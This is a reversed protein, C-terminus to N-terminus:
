RLQVKHCLDSGLHKALSYLAKSLPNANEIVVAEIRRALGQAQDAQYMERFFDPSLHHLSLESADVLLTCPQAAASYTARISAALSSALAANDGTMDINRPHLRLSALSGPVATTPQSRARSM